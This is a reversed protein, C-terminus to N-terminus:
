EPMAEISDQELPIPKLKGELQLQNLNFGLDKLIAKLVNNKVSSADSKDYVLLRLIVGTKDSVAYTFTIVRAGGSKGREKSTISMRIKRVGPMLEVGQYPNKKIEELFTDYDDAFSKYRRGLRKAAVDFYSTTQAIFNM